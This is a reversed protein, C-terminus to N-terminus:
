HDLDQRPKLLITWILFTNVRKNERKYTGNHTFSVIQDTTRIVNGCKDNNESITILINNGIQTNTKNVNNQPVNTRMGFAVPM